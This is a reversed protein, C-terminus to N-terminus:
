REIDILVFELLACGIGLYGWVVKGSLEGSLVVLHNQLRDAKQSQLLTKLGESSLAKM